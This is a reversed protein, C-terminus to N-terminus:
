KCKMCLHMAPIIPGHEAILQSLTEHVNTWALRSYYIEQDRVGRCCHNCIHAVMVPRSAQERKKMKKRKKREKEREREREKKRGGERGEMGEIGEKWERGGKRGKKMGKKKIHM